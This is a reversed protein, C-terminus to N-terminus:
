LLAEWQQVHLAHMGKQSWHILLVHQCAPLVCRFIKSLALDAWFTTAARLSLPAFWPDLCKHKWLLHQGDSPQQGRWPVVPIRKLQTCTTKYFHDLCDVANLVHSDVLCPSNLNGKIGYRFFTINQYCSGSFISFSNILISLATCCASFALLSHPIWSVLLQAM